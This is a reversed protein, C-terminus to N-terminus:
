WCHPITDPGGWTWAPPASRGVDGLRRSRNEEGWMGSHFEDSFGALVSQPVGLTRLGPYTLAVQLATQPANDLEVANSVPASALWAAAARRDRIELLLFSAETLAGYGFRVLGQIDIYEVPNASM